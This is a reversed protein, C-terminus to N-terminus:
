RTFLGRARTTSSCTKGCWSTLRTTAGATHAMGPTRTARESTSSPPRPNALRGSTPAPSARCDDLSTCDTWTRTSPGSHRTWRPVATSRTALRLRRTTATTVACWGIDHNDGCRWNCLLTNDSAPARPPTFWWLGIGCLSSTVGGVGRVCVCRLFEHGIYTGDIKNFSFAPSVVKALVNRATEPTLNDLDISPCSCTCESIPVDDGCSSPCSLIDNSDRWMNKHVGFGQLAATQAFLPDWDVTQAWESWDANWVGGILTHVAGHCNQSAYDTFEKIDSMQMAHYFEACRPASTYDSIFGFTKNSRMLYPVKATNWPSRLLGYANTIKLESDPISWVTPNVSLYATVDGSTVVYDSGPDGMPGFWEDSFIISNYFTEMAGGSTQVEHFDITYDWYPVTVTPDVVQLAKEFDITIANHSTFFGMGDHFHDCMRM